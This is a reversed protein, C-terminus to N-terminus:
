FVEKGVARELAAAARHLEFEADIAARRADLAQRQLLLVGLLEEKGAEYARMVLGLNQEALPLGDTAALAYRAEAAEWSELAAALDRPVGLATTEADIHALGAAGQAQAVALQNRQVPLEFRLGGIVLNAEDGERSWGASASVGPAGAGRAASLNAKATRAADRAAVLDPHADTLEAWATSPSGEETWAPRPPTALALPAEVPLALLARLTRHARALEVRADLLDRQVAARELAAFNPELVSVEGLEHRRRAVREMEEAIVVADAALQVRGDAAIARAFAIRVSTAVELETAALRARAADLGATAAVRRRRGTSGLDLPVEISVGVDAQPGTPGFRPGGELAIAPNSRPAGAGRRAAEASDVAVRARRVDPNQELASQVAADLTLSGVQPASAEAARPAPVCLLTSAAITSLLVLLHSVRSM